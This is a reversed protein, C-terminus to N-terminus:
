VEQRNQRKFAAAADSTASDAGDAPEATPQEDASTEGGELEALQKALAENQQELEVIRRTDACGVLVVLQAVVLWPVSPLVFRSFRM